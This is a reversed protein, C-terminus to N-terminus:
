IKFFKVLTEFSLWIRYNLILATVNQLTYKHIFTCTVDWKTLHFMVTPYSGFGKKHIRLICSCLNIKSRRLADTVTNM